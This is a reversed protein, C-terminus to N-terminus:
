GGPYRSWWLPDPAAEGYEFGAPHDLEQSVLDRALTDVVWAADVQSVLEVPFVDVGYLAGFLAGAVPGVASPVAAEASRHLAEVVQKQGVHDCNAVVALGARLASRASHNLGLERISAGSGVVGELLRERDLKEVAALLEPLGRVEMAVRLLELALRTSEIATTNGHTWGVLERIHDDDVWPVAAVPLLRTCAHHGSSTTPAPAPDGGQARKLASVVAPADGRRQALLPVAHLWGDLTVHEGGTEINQVHAWRQYARWALGLAPGIGKNDGRVWMRILSEATFCSLQTTVSVRLSTGPSTIADGLAAGLLLGRVRSLRQVRRVVAPPGERSGVVEDVM